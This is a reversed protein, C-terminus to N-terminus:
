LAIDRYKEPCDSLGSMQGLSQRSGQLSVMKVWKMFIKSIIKMFMGGNYIKMSIVQVAASDSHYGCHTYNGQWGAHEGQTSLMMDLRNHSLMM